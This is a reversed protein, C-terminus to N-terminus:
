IIKTIIKELLFIKIKIIYFNYCLGVLLTLINGLIKVLPMYNTIINLSYLKNLKEWATYILKLFNITFKCVMLFDSNEDDMKYM